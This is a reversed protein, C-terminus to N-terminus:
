SSRDSQNSAPGKIRFSFSRQQDTNPDLPSHQSNRSGVSGRSSNPLRRHELKTEMTQATTTTVDNYPPSPVVSLISSTRRDFASTSTSQWPSLGSIAEELRIIRKKLKVHTEGYEILLQRFHDNLKELGQTLQESRSILSEHERRSKVLAEEDILNDKRLIATGREILKERADPYDKLVDWLDNKLLVFLDSYGVSRVNATRRNGTKNGQINLVSLEGFVAGDVLTAFETVGDDAVVNLRGRKVIYMEKGVDGKRCVYDGPSFVQLRLKLVLEQLLSSECDAFLKVKQLTSLHVHIAIEAKLRDPLISTVSEEDLSQKETWLYDFWKIVRDEIDRSIKRAIMYKKVSDMRHQFEVREANMNSIMSGVNGVITAFILIGLLFDVVTFLYEIEEVPDAADGIASLTMTSWYMSYIYQHSLSSDNTNNYVFRDSGFGILYSVLFYFCANWHIVCAILFILKLIRFLNPFTTRTETREFLESLRYLKFLRNFRLIVPCPMSEEKCTIGTIIYLLDTPLISLVDLKMNWSNCYHIWLKQTDRVM